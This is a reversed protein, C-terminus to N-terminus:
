AGSEDPIRLFVASPREINNVLLMLRHAEPSMRPDFNVPDTTGVTQALDHLGHAHLDLLLLERKSRFEEQEAPTRPDVMALMEADDDLKWTRIDNDGMAVHVEADTEHLAATRHFRVAPGEHPDVRAAYGNRELEMVMGYGMAGIDVPDMWSVFYTCDNGCGAPDDRLRELTPGSLEALTTSLHAGPMKTDPAEFAFLPVTVLLVAGLVAVTQRPFRLTPLSRVQGASRPLSAATWAMALTMLASTGWAWHVLYPWLPGFIRSVALAGLALAVGVVGHLAILVSDRRRWAVVVTAAWLVLFAVGRSPSADFIHVHGRTLGVLDLHRLWMDRAEGLPPRADYPHRFNEVIIALNGPRHFLQDFVPPAWFLAFLVGTPLLERRGLTRRRRFLVVATLFWLGGVLAVYPIHTQVCVTGAFVVLPLLRHDGCLVSWVALLCVVWWMVPLRPNWPETLMV